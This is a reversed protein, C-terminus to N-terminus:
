YAPGRLFCSFLELTTEEVRPTLCLLLQETSSEGSFGLTLGLPSSETMGREKGIIAIDLGVISLRGEVRPAMASVGSM